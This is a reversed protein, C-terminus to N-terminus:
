VWRALSFKLARVPVPFFWKEGTWSVMLLISSWDASYSSHTIHLVQIRFHNQFPQYGITEGYPQLVVESLVLSVFTFINTRMCYNEFNLM